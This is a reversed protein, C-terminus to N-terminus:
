KAQSTAWPFPVKLFEELSDTTNDHNLDAAQIHM